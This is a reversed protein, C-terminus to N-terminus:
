RKPPNVVQIKGMIIPPAHIPPPAPPALAALIEKARTKVEPDKSAKADALQKDYFDRLATVEDSHDTKELTKLKKGLAILAETAKKRRDFKDHGLDAILTEILKKTKKFDTKGVDETKEKGGKDPVPQDAGVVPTASAALVLGVGVAAFRKANEYHERFTPYEPRVCKEPAM